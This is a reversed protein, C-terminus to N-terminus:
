NNHTDDKKEGESRKVITNTKTATTATTTTITNGVQFKKSSVLRYKKIVRLM